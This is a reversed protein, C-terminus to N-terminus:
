ITNGGQICSEKMIEEPRLATSLYTHATHVTDTVLMHEEKKSKKSEDLELCVQLKSVNCPEPERQLDLHFLAKNDKTTSCWATLRREKLLARIALHTPTYQSTLNPFAKKPHCHKNFVSALNWFLELLHSFSTFTPSFCFPFCLHWKSFLFNLYKCTNVTLM